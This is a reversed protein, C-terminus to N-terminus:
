SVRIFVYTIWTSFSDVKVMGRVYNIFSSFLHTDM